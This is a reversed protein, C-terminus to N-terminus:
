ATLIKKTIESFLVDSSNAEFSIGSLQLLLNIGIYLLHHLIPNFLLFAPSWVVGSQPKTTFVVVGQKCFFLNPELFVFINPFLYIIIIKREDMILKAFEHKVMLRIGGSVIDENQM